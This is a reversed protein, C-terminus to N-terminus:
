IIFYLISCICLHKSENSREGFNQKESKNEPLADKRAPNSESDTKPTEEEKKGQSKQDWYRRYSQIFENVESETKTKNMWPNEKDEKSLM